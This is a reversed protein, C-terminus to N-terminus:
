AGVGALAKKFEARALALQEKVGHLEVQAGSIQGRILSLEERRARSEQEERAKTAKSEAILRDYDQSAAKHREVLQAKFEATKALCEAQAAAISQDASQRAVTSERVAREQAAVTEKLVKEAVKLKEETDSLAKVLPLMRELENALTTLMNAAM